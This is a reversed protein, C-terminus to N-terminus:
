LYDCADGARLEEDPESSLDRHGSQGRGMAGARDDQPDGSGASQEASRVRRELVAGGGGAATLLATFVIEPDNAPFYGAVWAHTTKSQSNQASGSKAAVLYKPNRLIRTTGNDQSVTAILAENIIDYHAKPVSKVEIRKGVVKERKKTKRHM